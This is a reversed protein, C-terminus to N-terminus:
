KCESHHAAVWHKTQCKTSCYYSKKCKGCRVTSRRSCVRCLPITEREQRGSATRAVAIMAASGSSETRLNTSLRLGEGGKGRIGDHRWMSYFAYLLIDEPRTLYKDTFPLYLTPKTSLWELYQFPLYKTFNKANGYKELQKKVELYEFMTVIDHRYSTNGAALHNMIAATDFSPIFLGNDRMWISQVYKELHTPAQYSPPVLDRLKDPVFSMAAKIVQSLMSTAYENISSTMMKHVYIRNLMEDTKEKDM